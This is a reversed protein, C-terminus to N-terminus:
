TLGPEKPVSDVYARLAPPLSPLNTQVYREPITVQSLSAKNGFMATLAENLENTATRYRQEDRDVRLVIARQHDRVRAILEPGIIREMEELTATHGHQRYFALTQQLEIASNNFDSHRAMLDLYTRETFQLREFAAKGTETSLLFVLAGFDFVNSENFNFGIPKAFAWEPADPIEKAIAAIARQIGSRYNLFDDWQSRITFLARRGSALNDRKEIRREARWNFLFAFGAGAFSGILAKGIDAAWDSTAPEPMTQRLAGGQKAVAQVVPQIDAKGQEAM